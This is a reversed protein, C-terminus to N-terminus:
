GDDGDEEAEGVPCCRYEQSKELLDIKKQLLKNELAKRELDLEIERELTPECVDCDDLCGRVLLGPTPLSTTIEFSFKKRTEDTVQGTALDILGEKALATEVQKLAAARTAPPLPEAAPAAVALQAALVATRLGAGGSVPDNR